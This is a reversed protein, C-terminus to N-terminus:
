LEAGTIAAMHVCLSVTAMHSNPDTIQKLLILFRSKLDLISRKLVGREREREGDREPSLEKEAKELRELDWVGPLPALGQKIMGQISKDDTDGEKLKQM